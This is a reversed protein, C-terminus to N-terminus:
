GAGTLVRLGAFFVLLSGFALLIAGNVLRLSGYRGGFVAAARAPRERVVAGLVAVPLVRGLVYTSLLIAGFLADAAVVIWVLLLHYTPMPCGGGSGGYVAGLLLYEAPGSRQDVARRLADMFPPSITPLSVVGCERLGWAISLLGIGGLVVGAVYIGISPYGLVLPRVASGAWGLVFGLAALVAIAGLAYLVTRRVFGRRSEARSTAPLLTMMIPVNCPLFNMSLGVLFAVGLALLLGPAVSGMPSVVSVLSSVSEVYGQMMPRALYAMVGVAAGVTLAGAAVGDHRDVSRTPNM